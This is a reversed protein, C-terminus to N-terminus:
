YFPSDLLLSVALTKVMYFTLTIEFTKIRMRIMGVGLVDLPSKNAENVSTLSCPKIPIDEPIHRKDIIQTYCRADVGGKLVQKKSDKGLLALDISYIPASKPSVMPVSLHHQSVNNSDASSINRAVFCEHRSRFSKNIDKDEKTRLSESMCEDNPM